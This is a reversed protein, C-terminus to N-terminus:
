PFYCRLMGAYQAEEFAHLPEGSFYFDLPKAAKVGTEAQTAKRVLVM